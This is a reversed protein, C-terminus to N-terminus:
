WQLYNQFIRGHNILCFMMTVGALIVISKATYAVAKTNSEVFVSQPPAVCVEQRARPQNEVETIIPCQAIAAKMLQNIAIAM